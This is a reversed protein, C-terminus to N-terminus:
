CELVSRDFKIEKHLVSLTRRYNALMREYSEISGKRHRMTRQKGFSTSHKAESTEKSLTYYYKIFYIIIYEQNKLSYDELVNEISRLSHKTEGVSFYTDALSFVSSQGQLNKVKFEM